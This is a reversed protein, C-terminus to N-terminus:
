IRFIRYYLLELIKYIYRISIFIYNSYVKNEKFARLHEKTIQKHSSYGSSSMGGIRMTVFDKNIYSIKIKGIFIMRLLNEFDAAIKYTPNFYINNNRNGMNISDVNLRFRNYVERKCYFSPHAPMFGLRMLWPRFIAGHYYRTSKTIDDRKIYHVDAHVADIDPLENFRLVISELVDKSTYFDDSNLIGIIDGTGESLGQNMADYIGNDESSIIKLKGAFKSEYEKCIEVTNDNSYGDKIIVEYNSYTQELISNLTDRITKSSNYTVTIISIKM